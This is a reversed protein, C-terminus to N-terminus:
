RAENCRQKEPQANCEAFMKAFHRVVESPIQDFLLSRTYVEAVGTQKNTARLAALSEALNKRGQGTSREQQRSQLFESDGIGNYQAASLSFVQETTQQQSPQTIPHGLETLLSPGVGDISMDHAPMSPVSDPWNTSSAPPAPLRVSNPASDVGADKLVNDLLTASAIRVDESVPPISPTSRNSLVFAGVLFLMFLLGGQTAAKEGQAPNNFSNEHKSASVVSMEQKLQAEPVPVPVPEVAYDNFFNPPEWIPNMTLGDMQDYSGPVTSQVGVGPSMTHIHDTLIGVKKRLEGTEITHSRIMEDKEMTLGDICHLYEQKEHILRDVKLRLSAMEDEMESIIATFHKKESELRETHQKKRQRSDLRHSAM